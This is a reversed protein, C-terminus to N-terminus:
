SRLVQTWSQRYQQYFPKTQESVALLQQMDHGRVAATAAQQAGAGVPPRASSAGAPPVDHEARADGPREPQVHHDRQHRGGWRGSRRDGPQPQLDHYAAGRVHRAHGTRARLLAPDARDEPRGAPRGGGPHAARAAAGNMTTGNTSGLDVYRVKHEDFRVVAHWQSVFPENLVLENLQNRGIRVPSSAFAFAAHETSSSGTSRVPPTSTCWRRGSSSRCGQIPLM